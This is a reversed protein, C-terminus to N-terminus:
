RIDGAPDAGGTFDTLVLKTDGQGTVNVTLPGAPPYWSRTPTLASTLFLLPLLLLHM